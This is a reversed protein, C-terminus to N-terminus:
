TISTPHSSLPKQEESIIEAVKKGKETLKITETFNPNYILNEETLERLIDEMDRTAYVRLGKDWATNPETIEKKEVESGKSFVYKLFKFSM